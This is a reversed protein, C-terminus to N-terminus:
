RVIKIPPVIEYNVDFGHFESPRRDSPLVNSATMRVVLVDGSPTPRRAIVVSGLPADLFQLLEQRTEISAKLDSISETKPM